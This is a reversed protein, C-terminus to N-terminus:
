SPEAIKKISKGISMYNLVLFLLIFALGVVFTITSISNPLKLDVKKLMWVDFYYKIVFLLTFSILAVTGYIKVFITLLSKTIQQWTYGLLLLTKIEKESKNIIVQGYLLFLLAALSIIVLGIILLFLFLGGAVQQIVSEKLQEKNTEYHHEELFKSVAPDTKNTTAIIVRSPAKSKSDGYNQNLYTLFNDPVLISNVRDSFDIVSGYYTVNGKKGSIRLQFKVSGILDKSAQPAGMSPAIGYNYADLFTNPLIIPVENNGEKWSWDTTNVDIFKNPISEFFALTSFPPFNGGELSMVVMVELGSGSKFGALDNVFPEGKLEKLEEETFEANKLGFTNLSTIEKKIVLYQDSEQQNNIAFNVDSYVQVAVLLLLLGIITGLSSLILTKKNDSQRFAKELNM